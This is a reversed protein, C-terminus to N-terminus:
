EIKIFKVNTIDKRCTFICNFSVCDEIRKSFYCNNCGKDPNIVCQLKVGKYDFIEGIKKEM